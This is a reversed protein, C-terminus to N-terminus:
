SERHVHLNETAASLLLLIRGSEFANCSCWECMHEGLCHMYVILMTAALRKNVFEDHSCCGDSRDGSDQM